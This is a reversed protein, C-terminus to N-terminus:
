LDDDDAMSGLSGVSYDDGDVSAISMDHRRRGMRRGGMLDFRAAFVPDNQWRQEFDRM